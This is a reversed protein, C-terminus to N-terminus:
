LELIVWAMARDEKRAGSVSKDVDVVGSHSLFLIGKVLGDVVAGGYVMCSKEVINVNECKGM